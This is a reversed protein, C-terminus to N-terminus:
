WKVKLPGDVDAGGPIYTPADAGLTTFFKGEETM